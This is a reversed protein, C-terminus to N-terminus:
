HLQALWRIRRGCRVLIKTQGNVNYRVRFSAAGIVYTIIKPIHAAKKNLRGLIVLQFQPKHWTHVFCLSRQFLHSHIQITLILMSKGISRIRARCDLYLSLSLSCFCYNQERRWAIAHSKNSGASPIIEFSIVIWNRHTLGLYGVFVVVCNWGAFLEWM